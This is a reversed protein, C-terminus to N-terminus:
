HCRHRSHGVDAFRSGYQLSHNLPTLRMERPAATNQNGSSIVYSGYQLSHNLPILRMERPAATNQNGSSIVYSGYQLSHNLPTLRMERPAATNQNSNVYSGYQLSHNLPTLRMERPAATNQNGSSIVYTGTPRRVALTRVRILIYMLSSHILHIPRHQQVYVRDPPSVKSVILRFHSSAPSIIAPKLFALKTVTCRVHGYGDAVPTSDGSISIVSGARSMATEQTGSLASPRQVSRIISARYVSHM